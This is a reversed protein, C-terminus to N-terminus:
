IGALLNDLLVGANIMVEYKARTLTVDNDLRDRGGAIDIIRLQKTTSVHHGSIDMALLSGGNAHTGVAWNIDCCEGILAQAGAVTTITTGDDADVEFIADTGVIVDLFAQDWSGVTATGVSAPLYSNSRMVGNEKYIAGACVGIVQTYTQNPNGEVGVALGATGDNIQILLDGNSIRTAYNSAVPWRRIVPKSGGSRNRIWRLGGKSVNAM